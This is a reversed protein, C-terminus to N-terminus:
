AAGGLRFDAIKMFPSLIRTLLSLRNERLAPDPDMVMVGGKDFFASVTPELEVLIAVLEGYAQNTQAAELRAQTATFARWLNHETNGEAVFLGEKVDGSIEIAKEHADDLINAIRKFVARAQAPVKALARARLRADCVDDFGAGLANDVDLPALGDDILLTRLRGRFFEHLEGCDTDNVEIKGDFQHAAVEILTDLKIPFGRGKGLSEHRAGGPGLDLNIALIANAARRLGYPDASGTPELGTGFCGVLTDIRDAIGVIAGEVSAPLAAGAGRPMYHEAIADGVRAADAAWAPDAGLQLTAYYKGMVGQLEPLEGVVGSMLDAKCLEAARRAVRADFAVSGALADVTGAIRRVKDGTSKAEGLKAQFVVADLKKTLEDLDKKRDEGFFFRADSLRPAIARENGARVVAADKVVTGAITAFRNAAKGDRELAFYRQHTRMTLVLVEAPVELYAEDFGGWVGVPYEVLGTVEDLLDDDKRVTCGTEAALRALEAEIM